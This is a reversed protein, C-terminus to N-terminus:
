RLWDLLYTQQQAADDNVWLGHHCGDAIVQLEAGPIAAVAREAHRAHSCKPAV